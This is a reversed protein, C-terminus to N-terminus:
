AYRQAGLALAVGDMEPMMVDSIVLAKPRAPYMTGTQRRSPLRSLRMRLAADFDYDM